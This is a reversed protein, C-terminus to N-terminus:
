PLPEGNCTLTQDQAPRNRKILAMGETDNAACFGMWASRQIDADMPAQRLLDDSLASVRSWMRTEIRLALEELLHTLPPLGQLDDLRRRLSASDVRSMLKVVRVGSFLETRALRFQIDVPRDAGQLTALYSTLSESAFSGDAGPLGNWRRRESSDVNGVFLTLSQGALGETSWKISFGQADIVEGCLPGGIQLSGGCLSSAKTRGAIQGIERVAPALDRLARANDSPSPAPVTFEGRRFVTVAKASRAPLLSMPELRGSATTYWLACPEVRCRVRDGRSLVAFTGVPSWKQERFVEWTGDLKEILWQRPASDSASASRAAQGASAPSTVALFSVLLLGARRLSLSQKLTDLM